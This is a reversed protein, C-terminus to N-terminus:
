SVLEVAPAAFQDYADEVQARKQAAAATGLLSGFNQANSLTFDTGPIYETYVCFDARKLLSRLDYVELGGSRYIVIDNDYFASPFYKVVNAMMGKLELM